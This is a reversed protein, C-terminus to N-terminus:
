LSGAEEGLMLVRAYAQMRIGAHTRRRAYAQTSVGAHTCTCPMYLHMCKPNEENQIMESIQDRASIAGPTRISLPPPRQYFPPPHPSTPHSPPPAPSTPHSPPPHPHILLPHVHITKPLRPSPPPSIPITKPSVSIGFM